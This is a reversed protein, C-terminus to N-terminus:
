HVIRCRCILYACRNVITLTSLRYILEGDSTSIIGCTKSISSEEESDSTHQPEKNNVTADKAKTDQEM